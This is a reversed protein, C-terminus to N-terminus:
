SRVASKESTFGNSWTAQWPYPANGTGTSLTGLGANNYEWHTLTWFLTEDGYIYAPRGNILSTPNLIRWSQGGPPVGDIYWGDIKVAAENDPLTNLPDSSNYDPLNTILDWCHAYEQSYPSSGVACTANKFLYLARSDMNIEFNRGLSIVADNLNYQIGAFEGRFTYNVVEEPASYNPVKMRGNAKLKGNVKLIFKETPM